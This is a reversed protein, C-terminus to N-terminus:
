AAVEELYYWIAARILGVRSLAFHKEAIAKLAEVQKADLSVTRGSSVGRKQFADWARDVQEQEPLKLFEAIAKRVVQAFATRDSLLGLSRMKKLNPDAIGVWHPASKVGTTHERRHCLACLWVVVLPQDYSPHHGHIRGFRGCKSCQRPRVLVGNRLAANYLAYAAARSTAM